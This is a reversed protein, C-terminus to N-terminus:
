MQEKILQIVKQTMAADIKGAHYFLVLGNKDFLIVYSDNDALGWESVLKKDMDRLYLTKKFKQQKKKLAANIAFNPKWTAAMNIIAVSAFRSRDFAEAKIADSFDNNLDKEDPDVYFLLQVKGELESSSWATGDLRGGEDGSLTIEPLPMGLELAALSLASLLLLFLTKM